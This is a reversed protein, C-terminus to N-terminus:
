AQIELPPLRLVHVKYEHKSAMKLMSFFMQTKYHMKFKGRGEHRLFVGCLGCHARTPITGLGELKSFRHGATPRM